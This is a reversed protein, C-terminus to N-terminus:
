SPSPCPVEDRPSTSIISRAAALAQDVLGSAARVHDDPKFLSALYSISLHKTIESDAAAVEHLHLHEGIARRCAQEVLQHAAERGIAHALAASLAEAYVLGGSAELNAQMRAVDVHLGEIVHLMQSLAGATLLFVDPLTEWEAPWNGLGREHEQPMASMLVAILAPVRAAAALVVGCGVPNRKQPMSSSAGRGPGAPEALEAVESQSLLSIDRAIKGLSGVLLGLTAAVEVFRDRHSHWPVETSELHLGEALQSTIQKASEGLSALTGVAGGFQLINVRSRVSRIRQIGRTVGSLWGAVKLGFTTPAAHQLWTRGVIPTRKHEATLKALAIALKHADRDLIQLGQQLQLVLGTDMADQSTAGWHVFGAAAPDSAAVLRTLESIVPIASNGALASAQSIAAIDFLEARCKNAIVQAADFPVVGVRAQTRALAAEFDLIGQLRGRDSFVQRMDDTRFLPDFWHSALSEDV